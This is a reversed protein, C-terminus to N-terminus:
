YKSYEYSTFFISYFTPNSVISAKYGVFFGQLGETALISTATQLLGLSKPQNASM